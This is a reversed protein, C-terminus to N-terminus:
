FSDSITKLKPYGLVTHSPLGDSTSLVNAKADFLDALMFETRSSNTNM